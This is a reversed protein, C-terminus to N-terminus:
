REEDAPWFLAFHMTEVNWEGHQQLVQCFAEHTGPIVKTSMNNEERIFRKDEQQSSEGGATLGRHEQLAKHTRTRTRSGRWMIDNWNPLMLQFLPSFFLFFVTLLFLVLSHSTVAIYDMLLPPSNTKVFRSGAWASELTSFLNQKQFDDWVTIHRELRQRGKVSKFCTNPRSAHFPYPM